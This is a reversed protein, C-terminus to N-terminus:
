SLRKGSPILSCTCNPHLPPYEISSYDISLQGGKSGTLVDGLELFNSNISNTQQAMAECFECAGPNIFWEAESYGNEFYTQAVTDNTFRASESRAIREARYGKADGYVQEVRKKLKALSEGDKVGQILTKNLADITEKNYLGSVRIIQENVDRIMEPTITLLEGTIFNAIDDVQAEMLEIMVPTLVVGMRIAEEKVSFLWDDTTATKALPKINAIVQKEQDVNFKAIANKAKRAYLDKTEMIKSRFAENDVAQKQLLEKKTLAKKLTIKKATDVIANQQVPAPAIGVTPTIIDNYKKDEFAPLGLRERVENVTLAKNILETNQKQLFEKDEPIPSTHTVTISNDQVAGSRPQLAIIEQYIRDLRRMMPEIKEKSFIYSLAEINARGFGNNDTGGLLPKPVEFMTLVDAVAMKRTIEQDVDQLTAGVAKFDAQGGRMFATKGANEPGEYGERWQQAFQRFTEKDMDPLSVIGSPSANNKMYNLTFSTTTLEIDVYQSARELVSMGRLENFPNPRKDHYIEELEFPIQTGNGRHLVYGVVEGESMKLEIQAPNLLYIEKVKNSSEGRALYWFTEGYIETLMGYLHIFDTATRQIPNPHNFLATIPHNEIVDGSKRIVIPQYISLSMGIKDIAKYTIGRVQLEPNFQNDKNYNRLVKGTVSNNLNSSTLVKYAGKVRDSFKM